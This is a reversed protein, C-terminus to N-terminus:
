RRVAIEVSLAETTVTGGAGASLQREWWATVQAEGEAQSLAREALALIEDRSM